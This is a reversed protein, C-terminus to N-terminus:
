VILFLIPWLYDPRIAFSYAALLKTDGAGLISSQNLFMGLFIISLAYLLSAAEGYFIFLPLTMALVFLCQLNSIRRKKFDQYM